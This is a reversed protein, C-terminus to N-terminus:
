LTRNVKASSVTIYQDLCSIVQSLSLPALSLMQIIFSSTDMEDTPSPSLAALKIILSENDRAKCSFYCEVTFILLPILFAEEKSQTMTSELSLQLTYM